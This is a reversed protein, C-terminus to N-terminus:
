KVHRRGLIILLFLGLVSVGPEPVPRVLWNGIWTVGQDSLVGTETIVAESTGFPNESWEVFAVGSAYWGQTADDEPNGNGTDSFLQIFQDAESAKPNSLGETLGASEFFLTQLQSQSALSWGPNNLLATTPDQSHTQLPDLWELNTDTDRTITGLDILEAHVLNHLILVLLLRFIM